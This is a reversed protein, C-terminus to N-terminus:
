FLVNNRKWTMHGDILSRRNSYEKILVWTSLTAVRSCVEKVDCLFLSSQPFHEQCNLAPGSLSEHLKLESDNGLSYQVIGSFESALVM